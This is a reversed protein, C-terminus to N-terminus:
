ASHNCSLLTVSTYNEMFRENTLLFKRKIKKLHPFLYLTQITRPLGPLNQEIGSSLIQQHTAPGTTRYVGPLCCCLRNVTLLLAFCAPLRFIGLFSPHRYPGTLAATPLVAQPCCQAQSGSLGM